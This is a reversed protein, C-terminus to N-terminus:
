SADFKLTTELNGDDDVTVSYVSGNPSSLLLEMTTEDTRSVRSFATKLSASLRGLYSSLIKADAAADDGALVIPDPIEVKM